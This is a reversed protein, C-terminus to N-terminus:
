PSWRRKEEWEEPWADSLGRHERRISILLALLVFLNFELWTTHWDQYWTFGLFFVAMGSLYRWHITYARIRM